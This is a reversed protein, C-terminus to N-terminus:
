RAGLHDVGPGPIPPRLPQEGGPITSSARLISLRQARIQKRDGATTAGWIGWLMDQPVAWERCKACSRCTLCLQKARAKDNRSDSFWLEPDITACLAEDGGGIATFGHTPSIFLHPDDVALERILAVLDPQRV